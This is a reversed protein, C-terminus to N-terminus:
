QGRVRRPREADRGVRGRARQGRWATGLRHGPVPHHGRRRGPLPRGPRPVGPKERSATRIAPWAKLAKNATERDAGFNDKGNLFYDYMRAAHAKSTDIVGKM